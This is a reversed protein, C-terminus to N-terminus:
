SRESKVSLFPAKLEVKDATSIQDYLAMGVMILVFVVSMVILLFCNKDMTRVEENVKL